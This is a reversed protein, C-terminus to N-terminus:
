PIDGDAMLRELGAVVWDPDTGHPPIHLFTAPWRSQLAQHLWSNCVYQGADTSLVCGLAAAMAPAIASELHAPGPLIPAIIGDVDPVDGLRARGVHEIEPSTRRRAVGIGLITDPEVANALALTEQIGRSFSVPIVRGILTLRPSHYGDLARALQAAPNDVIDAFPGFGTVLVKM